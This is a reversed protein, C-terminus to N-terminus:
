RALFQINQLILLLIKHNRTTKAQHEASQLEGVDKTYRPLVVLADVDERHCDSGQHKKFVKPGKKWYTFGNSIFASEGKMIVLFTNEVEYHMCLYCFAADRAVDYHLWSFMDCWEGCFCRDEAKSGFQRKPFKFAKTPRFQKATFYLETM